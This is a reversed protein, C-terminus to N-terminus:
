DKNSCQSQWLVVPKPLARQFCWPGQGFCAWCILAKGLVSIWLRSWYKPIEREITNGNWYLALLAMRLLCSMWLVEEGGSCGRLSSSCWFLYQLVAVRWKTGLPASAQFPFSINEEGPHWWSWSEARQAGPCAAGVAFPWQWPCLPSCICHFLDQGTSKHLQLWVVARCPRPSCSGPPLVSQTIAPRLQM